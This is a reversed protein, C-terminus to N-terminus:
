AGGADLHLAILRERGAQWSREIQGADVVAVLMALGRMTALTLDLLEPAGQREAFGPFLDEASAAIMRDIARTLGAVSERLEPDTRAAVVLELSAQFVPGTHIAWLQDLVAGIRGGRGSSAPPVRSPLEDILRATMQGVAEAVFAARTPFHHMQASQSVGAREAVRRTSLAAYGDEVLSDAAASLLAARTAASREAQTRRRRAAPRQSVAL